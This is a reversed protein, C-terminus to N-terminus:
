TQKSGIRLFLLAHVVFCKIAPFGSIWDFGNLGLSGFKLCVEPSQLIGGFFPPKVVLAAHSFQPCSGGGGFGLRRAQFKFIPARLGSRATDVVVRECRSFPHLERDEVVLM